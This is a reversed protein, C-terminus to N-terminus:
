MKAEVVSSNRSGAELLSVAGGVAWGIVPIYRYIGNLATDHVQSAWFAPSSIMGRWLWGKAMRIKAKHGGYIQNEISQGAVTALYNTITSEEDILTPDRIFAGQTLPMHLVSSLDTVTFSIEMSLPQGKVNFGLNGTGRQVTFETIMGLPIQCRGTDYLSCLFPGTYSERGLSRPWAGAAIMAFPVYLKMIRTLTNGYPANLILKYSGRPLSASSSQWHKPIDVYGDGMLGKLGGLLGFTVGNLAGMMADTALDLAGKVISGLGAGDGITFRHEAFSSSASNLKGELASAQVSNSFSEQQAGTSSVRFVAFQSGQRFEASLQKKFNNWSGSSFLPNYPEKEKDKGEATTFTGRPDSNDLSGDSKSDNFEGWESFLSSVWYTFTALGKEGAANTNITRHQGNSTMEKKVYGTMDTTSGQNLALFEDHLLQNAIRQARNALAYVDIYNEKSFIDPALEHYIDLTDQGLTFPMGIRNNSGETGSLIKPYIGSNLALTNVLMNVAGWYLTMTERMHYFKASKRFYFFDAVEYILLPVAILPFAALMAYRGLFSTVGYIFSPWKGTRALVSAGHNFSGGFFSLLSNFEPVGFRLYIIQEHDDFASSWLGGMGYDGNTESLTVPVRGAMRGPEPIDAYPTFQSHCNIGINCGFRGDAFKSAASTWYRNRLDLFPTLGDDTLMFASKVWDVDLADEIDGSVMNSSKLLPQGNLTYQDGVVEEKALKNEM